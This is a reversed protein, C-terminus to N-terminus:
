GRPTEAFGIAPREVFSENRWVNWSGLREASRLFGDVDVPVDHEHRSCPRQLRRGVESVEFPLPVACEGGTKKSRNALRTRVPTLCCAPITEEASHLLIHGAVAKGGLRWRQLSRGAQSLSVDLLEEIRRYGAFNRVKLSRAARKFNLNFRIFVVEDISIQQLNEDFALPIPIQIQEIDVGLLFDRLEKRVPKRRLISDALAFNSCDRFGARPILKSRALGKALTRQDHMLRLCM